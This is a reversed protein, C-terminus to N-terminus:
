VEDQPNHNTGIPVLNRKKYDVQDARCISKGNQRDSEKKMSFKSCKAEPTANKRCKKSM